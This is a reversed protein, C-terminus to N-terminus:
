VKLPWINDVEKQELGFHDFFLFYVRSGIFCVREHEMVPIINSIMARTGLQLSQVCVLSRIDWIKVIGIDDMSIVMPTNEIKTVATVMSSHGILTGTLSYDFYKPNISWVKIKNEYGGTILM